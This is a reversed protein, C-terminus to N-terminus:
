IFFIWLKREWCTLLKKKKLRIMNLLNEPMFETVKSINLLFFRCIFITEWSSWLRKLASLMLWQLLGTTGSSTVWLNHYSRCTLGTSINVQPPLLRHLMKTPLLHLIHLQTHVEEASFVCVCLGMVEEEEERQSETQLQKESLSQLTIAAWWAAPGLAKLGACMLSFSTQLLFGCFLSEDKVKTLQSVPHVETEGVM